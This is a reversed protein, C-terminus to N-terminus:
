VGPENALATDETPVTATAVGIRDGVDLSPSADPWQRFQREVGSPDWVQEFNSAKPTAMLVQLSTETGQVDFSRAFIRDPNPGAASRLDFTAYQYSGLRELAAALWDPPTPGEKARAISRRLLGTAFQEYAADTAEELEEDIYNWPRAFALGTDSVGLKGHTEFSYVGHGEIRTDPDDATYESDLGREDVPGAAYAGTGALLQSQAFSTEYRTIATQRLSGLSEPDTVGLFRYAGGTTTAWDAVPADRERLAVCDVYEMSARAYPREWDPQDVVSQLNPDVLM